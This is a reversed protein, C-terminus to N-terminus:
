RQDTHRNLTEYQSDTMMQMGLASRRYAEEKQSWLLSSKGLAVWYNDLSEDLEMLSDGIQYHPSHRRFRKFMPDAFLYFAGTAFAMVGLPWAPSEWGAASFIMWLNHDTEPKQGEQIMPHM